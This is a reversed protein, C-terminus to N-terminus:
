RYSGKCTDEGGSRKPKECLVDTIVFTVRSRGNSKIPESETSETPNRVDKKNVLCVEPSKIGGM